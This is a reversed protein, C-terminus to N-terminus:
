GDEVSEVEFEEPTKLPHHLVFDRSDFHTDLWNLSSSSNSCNGHSGAISWVEFTHIQCSGIKCGRDFRNRMADYSHFIGVFRAYFGSM